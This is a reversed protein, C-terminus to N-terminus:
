IEKRVAKLYREISAYDRGSSVSEWHDTNCLKRCEEAQNYGHEILLLGQPKLVKEALKILSQIHMLGKSSEDKTLCFSDRSVLAIEPEHNKVSIHLKEYEDQPIYPPNSILIDVQPLKTYFNEHSFDELLFLAREELSLNRANEKAITLAEPSIDVLTAQWTTRNKLISIGICGSGCGLDLIRLNEEKSYNLAEEVLHETEPRPILTHKNVKFDIGFFEKEGFIYAMPEGQARRELSQKLKERQEQTCPFSDKIRLQIKDINLCHCLIISAERQAEEKTSIASASFFNESEQNNTNASNANPNQADKYLQESAALIWERPSITDM